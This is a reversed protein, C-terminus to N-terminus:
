VLIKKESGFDATKVYDFYLLPMKEFPWLHILITGKIKIDTHGGPAKTHIEHGARVFDIFIWIPVIHVINNLNKPWTAPLFLCENCPDM